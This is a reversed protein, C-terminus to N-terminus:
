ARLSFSNQSASDGSGFMGSMGMESQAQYAAFAQNTFFSSENDSSSTGVDAMAKQKMSGVSAELEALSVVGDQNTDLSSFQEPTLGSESESLAGDSDSDKSEILSAFDPPPGGGAGQPGMGPPAGGGEAMQAERDAETLLGDGDYDMKAFIEESLGSEEISLGGDGDTDMEAFRAEMEEKSPPKMSTASTQYYSGGGIASISM